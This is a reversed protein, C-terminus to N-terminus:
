KNETQYKLVAEICIFDYLDDVEYNQWREIFYAITRGQYFTKLKLFKDVKSLYIIGYPFFAKDCDQRRQIKKVSAMYPKVYGEEIKRVIFPHEMHVEGVSVLSDAREENDILEKIAQDIDDEKRLPSTPEILAIYDFMLNRSKYYEMTHALVDFIPTTDQALEEPRIFPVEAGHQKAIDAIEKDDTNVIFTDLYRSQKAKEISWVILPKNFLPLVNKRPLGKSGGRAPIVGLIKKNKYM